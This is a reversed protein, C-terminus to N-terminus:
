SALAPLRHAPQQPQEALPLLHTCQERPSAFEGRASPPATYVRPNTRPPHTCRGNVPPYSRESARITESVM